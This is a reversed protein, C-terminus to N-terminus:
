ATLSDISRATLPLGVGCLDDALAVGGLMREAGLRTPQRDRQVSRLAPSNTERPSLGPSLKARRNRHADLGHSITRLKQKLQTCNNAITKYSVNLRDAIQAMTRGAALLRLIERERASLNSVADPSPDARLFAIRRAMEPHLYRGGNAVTKIADAFLAPEDNKAIYGKAGAELGYPWPADRDLRMPSLATRCTLAASPSAFNPRIVPLNIDIIGVDPKGNFFAAFGAAGDQAEIVEIDPEGELLSRCGSVIIPHDDVILVRM